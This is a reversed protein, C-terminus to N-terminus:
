RYSAQHTSTSTVSSFPSSPLLALAADTQLSSSGQPETSELPQFRQAWPSACQCHQFTLSSAIQCKPEQDRLYDLTFVKIVVLGSAKGKDLDTWFPFVLAWRPVSTRNPGPLVSREYLKPRHLSARDLCKISISNYATSKRTQRSREDLMNKSILGYQPM